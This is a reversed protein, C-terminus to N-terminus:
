DTALGVRFNKQADEGIYWIKYEGRAHLAVPEAVGDSDFKGEKTPSLFPNNKHRIWHVGDPSYAYAIYDNNGSEERGNATYFMEYLNDSKMVFADQIGLADYSENGEFVKGQTTWNIGDSSIAYYLAEGAVYWLQYIDGDKVVSPDHIGYARANEVDETTIVLVPEDRPARWHKGDPSEAFHLEGEDDQIDVFWLKYLAGDKILTPETIYTYGEEPELVDRVVDWVIGEESTTYYLTGNLTFWMKTDSDEMIFFSDISQNDAFGQPNSRHRRLEIAPAQISALRYVCSGNVLCDNNSSCGCVKCQPVLEGGVCVLPLTTSCLTDKTGDDCNIISVIHTCQAEKTSPSQCQDTTTANSDDCDSNSCCSYSQCTNNELYQCSTCVPQQTNNPSPSEISPPNLEQVPTQNVSTTDNPVIIKPIPIEEVEKITSLCGVLLLFSSIVLWAYKM